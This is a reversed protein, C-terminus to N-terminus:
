HHIAINENQADGGAPSLTVSLPSAYTYRLDTRDTITSDNTWDTETNGQYLQGSQWGIFNIYSGTPVYGLTAGSKAPPVPFFPTYATGKPAGQQALTVLRKMRLNKLPKKTNLAIGKVSAEYWQAFYFGYEDTGFVVLNCVHRIPDVSFSMSANNGLESDAYIYSNSGNDGMVRFKNGKDIYGGGKRPTGDSVRIFAEWRNPLNKSANKKAFLVGADVEVGEATLGLYANPGEVIGGAGTISQYSTDMTSPLYYNGSAGTFPNGNFSGVSVVRRMGGLTQGSVTHAQQAGQNQAEPMMVSDPFPAAAESLFSETAYTDGGLVMTGDSSNINGDPPLPTSVGDQYIVGDPGMVRLLAYSIPYVLGPQNSETQHVKSLIDSPSGDWPIADATPIDSDENSPVSQSSGNIAEVTYFYEIGDTLGTDSFQFINTVGPGTDQTMVPTNGNVPNQYDEGDTATGRYVNYGTAGSIGSWYLTIKGSGTAYVALDTPAAIETSVTVSASGSMGGAAAATVTYPGGAATATFLGDGDITGGGSVTWTFAPQPSLASGFQDTATATFQQVGGTQVTASSPSVIVTMATQNVTVSVQSAATLNQAGAIVVQFTYAGAQTFTATTNKAANTGSASFTVPAPGTASWTYTLASEGGDDAGLVSLATTTGTVPDPTASAPTAVTPPQNVATITLALTTTRTLGNGTGTITVTAPSTAATGGAILTLTSTTATSLPAFTATVGSPLGSATLSVNGNFSGSANISITSEGSDGQVITLSSPAASLSFDGPPNVTLTAQATGNYTASITVPTTTAVTQTTITFTASTQGAPVAVNAPISATSTDSSSLSVQAGGSPAPGSLTVTATSPNGGIVASPDLSVGAVVPLVTLTLPATRALSGSTGRITLSYTGVSVTNGVTLALTSSTNTSQPAFLATAGTPVGLLTLSVSGTFGGTPSVTVASAGSGGQPVSISSPSASLSFDPMQPTASKEVSRGSETGAANVATVQYYYTLGNTRGTDVVSPSAGAPIGTKVPTAAEGGPTTGRYLNYSTAGSAATWTLSVQANGATATLGTPVAAPAYVTIPINPTPDGFYGVLEHVMNWQWNYTGPTPPATVTYSFARSSGPTVILNAPLFVRSTGWTTNNLPDASSLRYANAESWTTAGVNKMIVYASYTQSTTMTTPVSYGPLFYGTCTAGDNATSAFSLYDIGMVDASLGDLVLRM